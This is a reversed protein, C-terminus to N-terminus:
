HSQRIHISSSLPHGHQGELKISKSPCNKSFSMCAIKCFIDVLLKERNVTQCVSFKGNAAAVAAVVVVKMMKVDAIASWM